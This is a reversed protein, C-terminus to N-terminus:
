GNGRGEERTTFNEVEDLLAKVLDGEKVLRLIQGQKFLLGGKKGGAIGIDAAAAEGPGNVECGMVAITLPKTCHALGEEVEQVLKMLDLTTRGCTPCSIVTPGRRGLELSNLIEWAVKVEEQPPATLSVRITDGLGQHLLIGLGVASHITGRFISGAETIGLHLPYDMIEALMQNALVTMKVSSAKLSVIIDTFGCDELIQINQLASKVMAEPTPHSNELGIDKQLSGANVGIRIPVKREQALLAIEEVGKRPGINGPNIRLGDIGQELAQLALRHNFHIDAVVPIGIEKRLLSANQIGLDDFVAVRILECGFSELEQVQKVTAALNHPHTNTMSQVVVPAGGGITVSGVRVEKSIRRRMAM